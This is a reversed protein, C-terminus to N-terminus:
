LVGCIINKQAKPARLISYVKLIPRCRLSFFYLKEYACETVYSDRYVTAARIYAPFAFYSVIKVFLSITLIFFLKINMENALCIKAGSKERLTHEYNFHKIM